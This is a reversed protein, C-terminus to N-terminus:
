KNNKLKYMKVNLIEDADLREGLLINPITFPLDYVEVSEEEPLPAGADLIVGEEEGELRTRIREGKRIYSFGNIGANEIQGVAIMDADNFLECFKKELKSPTSGFFDNLIAAHTIITCTNYFGICFQDPYLVENLSVEKDIVSEVLGLGKTLETVPNEYRKNVILASAKWGM